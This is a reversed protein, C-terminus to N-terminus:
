WFLDHGTPSIDTGPTYVTLETVKRQTKSDHLTATNSHTATHQMNGHAATNGDTVTKRQQSGIVASLDRIM